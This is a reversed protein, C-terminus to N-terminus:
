HGQCWHPSTSTQLPMHTASHPQSLLEHRKAFIPASSPVDPWLRQFDSERSMREELYRQTPDVSTVVASQHGGILKRATTGSPSRGLPGDRDAEKQGMFRAELDAPGIAPATQWTFEVVDLGRWGGKSWFGILVLSFFLSSAELGHNICQSLGLPAPIEVALLGGPFLSPDRSAEM